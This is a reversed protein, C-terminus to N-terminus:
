AGSVRDAGDARPGSCPGREPRRPGPLRQAGPGPDQGAAAPPAPCLSLRSWGWGEGGTCRTGGAWPVLGGRGMGPAGRTDGTGVPFDRGPHTPPPPRGPSRPRPPPDERAGGGAHAPRPSGERPPPPNLAPPKLGSSSGRVGGGRAGRPEASGPRSPPLPRRAGLRWRTRPGVPAGPAIDPQM